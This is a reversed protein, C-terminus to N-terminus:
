TSDYPFSLALDYNHGATTDWSSRCIPLASQFALRDVAFEYARILGWHRRHTTFDDLDASRVLRRYPVNATILSHSNFSIHRVPHRSCVPLASKDLFVM